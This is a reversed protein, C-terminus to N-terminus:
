KIVPPPKPPDKDNQICSSLDFFMFELAKEQASLDGTKCSAPFTQSTTKANASVHFNSYVVRGCKQDDAASLPTNFTMHQVSPGATSPGHIWRQSPPSREADLDHRWEAVGLTGKTTTAGVNQLWDAFAAGKPFSTDLTFDRSAAGGSAREPNWTGTSEFPKNGLHLWSYGYHTTFVRGGANTYNLLNTDPGPKAQASGECPLMVIDYKKLTALDNWLTNGGATPPSMDVGNSRYFHVKGNGIASTFEAPAIGMKTLLCEFPDASGSAIAMQPLDGEAKSKPLRFTQPDTAPLDECRKVEPLVLQRRWKGVQIVLPIDKGVPVNTLQFGGAADTIASVLPSGSVDGCRDCSAGSKIPALPANPVFVLINYLPVKGAPDYVKGTVSTTKGGECTVQQLCLGTCPRQAADGAPGSDGFLPPRAPGGEATPASPDAPDFGSPAPDSGCAAVLAGAVLAIAGMSVSVGVISAGVLRPSRM